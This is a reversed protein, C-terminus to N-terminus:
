ADELGKLRGLRLLADLGGAVVDAPGGLCVADRHEGGAARANLIRDATTVRVEVSGDGGFYQYSVVHGLAELDLVRNEIRLRALHAERAKEVTRQAEQAVENTMMTM